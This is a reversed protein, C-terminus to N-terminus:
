SGATNESHNCLHQEFQEFAHRYKQRAIELAEMQQRDAVRRDDLTDVITKLSEFARLVASGLEECQSCAM